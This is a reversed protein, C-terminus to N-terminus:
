FYIEIMKLTERHFRTLHRTMTTICYAISFAVKRNVTIAHCLSVKTIVKTTLTIDTTIYYRNTTTHSHVFYHHVPTDLM